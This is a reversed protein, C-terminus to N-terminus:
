LTPWTLFLLIHYHPHVRQLTSSRVNEFKVVMLRCRFCCCLYYRYYNRHTAFRFLRLTYSVTFPLAFSVVKSQDCLLLPFHCVLPLEPHFTPQLCASIFLVARCIHMHKCYICMNTASLLFFFDTYRRLTHRCLRLYKRKRM